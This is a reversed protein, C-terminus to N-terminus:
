VGYYRGFVWGDCPEGMKKRRAREFYCAVTKDTELADTGEIAAQWQEYSVSTPNRRSRRLLNVQRELQTGKHELAKFFAELPSPIAGLFPTLSRLRM